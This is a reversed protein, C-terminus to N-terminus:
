NELTRYKLPWGLGEWKWEKDIRVGLWTSIQYPIDVTNFVARYFSQDPNPCVNPDGVSGTEWLPTTLIMDSKGANEGHYVSGYKSYDPLVNGGMDEERDNPWYGLLNDRYEFDEIEDLRTKCYNTALYEPPLAVDYFQLNNVYFHGNKGTNAGEIKGITLPANSTMANNNLNARGYEVGDLYCILLDTAGNEKFVYTYVRWPNGKRIQYWNERGGGSNNQVVVAVNGGSANMRINWGPGNNIRDRKALISHSDGAATFTDYIMFQITYSKTDTSRAGMNFLAPDKVVASATGGTGSYWPSYFNYKLQDAAPPQFLSSSLRPSYLLTFTNRELDTYFTGENVGHPFIGGYNSTVVVLWNENAFAPRSKLANMIEGIQDDVTNIATIINPKPTGTADYFGDTKGSTNVGQLHALLVDSPESAHDSLIGVLADKVAVDNNLTEKQDVDKGFAAVFAPNSSLLATRLTDNASKLLSLFSPTQLDEVTGNEKGVGHTTVSTLLNAWGRDSSFAPLDARSDALGEFTYMGNSILEKIHRAKNTNIAEQVAKGGAGDVLIVLVKGTKNATGSEGYEAKLRREVDKNCAFLLLTMMLAMIMKIRSYFLGNAIM